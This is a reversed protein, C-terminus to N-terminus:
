VLKKLADETFPVLEDTRGDRIKTVWGPDALLARRVAVLDFENRELMEILKRFDTNNAGKGEFLSRTFESDLGVSGVTIAPKGTLKKTWGALNFQLM